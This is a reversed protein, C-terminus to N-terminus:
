AEVVSVRASIASDCSTGCDAEYGHTRLKIFTKWAAKSTDMGDKSVAILGDWSLKWPREM